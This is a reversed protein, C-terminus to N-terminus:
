TALNWLRFANDGLIKQRDTASFCPIHTAILDIEDRLTPRGYAARAAGPFGTGFLLRDAGFTEYVRQVWPYTDSYPYVGSQSVSNLESVKVWVNPWRALTLLHQLQTEADAAKLDARGLHDIVISVDPHTQVMRALRPLQNPAIFFNLIAGLQAAKRWLRHSHEADLWGDGGHAGNAYYIPSFRMGHLGQEKMWYELKTAVLPDTPDILGHGRLRAPSKRVCDAIYLNDWGCYIVQVLIAHTCGGQDMDQILSELTAEHPPLKFDRQYPHSFKYRDLQNSWVHMHTDVVRDAASNALVANTLGTAAPSTSQSASLCGAVASSTCTILFNRRDNPSRM